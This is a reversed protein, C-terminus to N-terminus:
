ASLLARRAQNLQNAVSADLVQSGLRVRFGGLLSSDTEQALEVRSGFGSLSKELTQIQETSLPKVSVVTGHLIGARAEMMSLLERSIQSIEGLRRRSALLSVLRGLLSDGSPSGLAALLARSRTAVPITADGLRAALSDPLQSLARFVPLARSSEASNSVIELLAKAYRTSAKSM